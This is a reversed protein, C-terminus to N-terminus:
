QALERPQLFLYGGPAIQLLRDAVVEGQHLKGQGLSVAGQFSIDCRLHTFQLAPQVLQLELKQEGPLVLAFPGKQRHVGPGAARLGLVPRM